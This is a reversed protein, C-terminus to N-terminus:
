DMLVASLYNADFPCHEDRLPMCSDTYWKNMEKHWYLQHVIPVWRIGAAITGDFTIYRVEGNPGCEKWADPICEPYRCLHYFVGSDLMTGPYAKLRELREEGDINTEGDSLVNVLKVKAIDFRVLKLSKESQWLCQGEQRRVFEKVDTTERDILIVQSPVVKDHLGVVKHTGLFVGRIDRKVRRGSLTLKEIDEQSYGADELMEMLRYASQLTFTVMVKEQETLSGFVMM